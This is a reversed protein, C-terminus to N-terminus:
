AVRAEATPSLPHGGGSRNVRQAVLTAQLNRVHATELEARANATAGDTALGRQLSHLWTM